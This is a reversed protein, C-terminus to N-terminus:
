RDGWLYDFFHTLEQPTINRLLLAHERDSGALPNLSRAEELRTVIIPSRACLM